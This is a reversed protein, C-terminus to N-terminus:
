EGPVPLVTGNPSGMYNGDYSYPDLEVQVNYHAQYKSLFDEVARQMFHLSPRGINSRIYADAADYGGSAYSSWEGTPRHGEWWGYTQASAVYGNNFLAVINHIGEYDQDNWLSPRSLDDRFYIAVEYSGDGGDTVIYDLSNFHAKVSDPLGYSADAAAMQLMRIMEASLRRMDALTTIKGGCGTAARGARANESIAAKMRQKGEPTESWEKCKQSISALNITAM